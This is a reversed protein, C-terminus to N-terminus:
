SIHLGRTQKDARNGLVCEIIKINMRPILVKFVNWVNRLVFNVLSINKANIKLSDKLQALTYLVARDTDFLYAGVIDRCTIDVLDWNNIWQINKCYFEFIKKREPENAKKFQYLLILLATMRYEHVKSQLLKKVQGIPM